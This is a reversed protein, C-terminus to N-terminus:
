RKRWRALENKLTAILGFDDGGNRRVFRWRKLARAIETRTFGYPSIETPTKM